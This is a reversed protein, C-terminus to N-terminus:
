SLPIVVGGVFCTAGAHNVSVAFSEGGGTTFAHGDPDIASLEDIVNSQDVTDNGVGFAYFERQDATTDTNLFDGPNAGGDLTDQNSM